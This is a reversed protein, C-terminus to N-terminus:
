NVVDATPQRRSRKERIELYAYIEPHFSGSVRSCINKQIKVGKRSQKSKYCKPERKKLCSHHFWFMKHVVFLHIQSCDKTKISSNKCWNHHIKAHALLEHLLIPVLLFYRSCACNWIEKLHHQPKKAPLGQNWCRIM